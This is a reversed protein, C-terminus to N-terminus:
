DDARMLDGDLVYGLAELHARAGDDLATGPLGARPLSRGLADLADALETLAAKDEFSTTGPVLEGPDQNLDYSEFVGTSLDHITKTRGNSVAQMRSMADVEAWLLRQPATPDEAFLDRGQLSAPTDLGVLPLVTPVVDVVQASSAQPGTPVGPGRMLLPVRTLEDHLQHGHGVMGHEGIEKGHDSTIVVLTSEALGRRDLLDVLEAVLADAHRVGGAYLEDLRKKLAPPPPQQNALYRLVDPHDAPLGDGAGIAELHEIPPDFEHAAYTHVFLFWPEDGFEDLQAEVAEVGTAKWARPGVGPVTALLGRTRESELNIWPDLVGYREFGDGFGFRPLVMAGGTFAATRYGADRLIEALLPTRLADRRQTPRQVGHVSPHQGSLLSLHAPLTYPATTWAETFVAADAGFGDLNPTLPREQGYLGVHDARVTDLSVLLLNPRAARRRPLPTLRLGAFVCVANSPTSEPGAAELVLAGDTADVEWEAEFRLWGSPATAADGDLDVAVALGEILPEVLSGDTWGVDVRWVGEHDDGLIAVHGELRWRATTSGELSLELPVSLRDGRALAVGHRHVLDTAYRGYRARPASGGSQGSSQSELLEEAAAVAAASRGLRRVGIETFRGEAGLGAPDTSEIVLVLARTSETPAFTLTESLAVEDAESHPDTFHEGVILPLADALNEPLRDGALELVGFRAYGDDESAGRGVSQVRARAEVWGLGPAIEILHFGAVQAGELVLSSGDVRASGLLETEGSAGLGSALRWQESAPMGAGFLVESAGREPGGGPEYIARSLDLLPDFGIPTAEVQGGSGGCGSAVAAIWIAHVAKPCHDLIGM